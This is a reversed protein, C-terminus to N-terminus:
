KPGTEGERMKSVTNTNSGTQFIWAQLLLLLGSGIASLDPNDGVGVPLLIFRNPKTFLSKSITIHTWRGGDGSLQKTFPKKSTNLNFPYNSFWGDLGDRGNLKITEQDGRSSKKM